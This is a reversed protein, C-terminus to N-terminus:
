IFGYILFSGFLLAMMGSFPALPKVSSFAWTLLRQFKDRGIFLFVLAAFISLWGIISMILPFKSGSAQIVLLGGLLLRVVVAGVHLWLQEPNERLRNIITAPSVILSAGALLMLAGFIIILINM